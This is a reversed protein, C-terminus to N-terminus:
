PFSSSSGVQSGEEDSDDDGFNCPHNPLASAAGEPEVGVTHVKERSGKAKGRGRGRGKGRYSKGSGKKSDPTKEKSKSATGGRGSTVFGAQRM